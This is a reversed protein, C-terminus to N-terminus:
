PNGDSDRRSTLTFSTTEGESTFATDRIEKGVANLMAEVSRGTVHLNTSRQVSALTPATEDTLGSPPLELHSSVEEFRPQSSQVVPPAPTLGLDNDSSELPCAIAVAEAACVKYTCRLLRVCM